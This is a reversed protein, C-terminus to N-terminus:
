AAEPLGRLAMLADFDADGETRRPHFVFEHLGESLSAAARRIEEARMSFLRDVGWLTDTAKLPAGNPGRARVFMAAIRLVAHTPQVWGGFFRVSGARLWGAFDAPLVRLMERRVFPHVHLHHHANVFACDLGAARFAEWQAEVERRVLARADRSVGLMGGARAASAGWPWRECTLPRSDCVHLHWGVLLSPTARALEVAEDTGPQGLMLSAGHLAGERCARVIAANVSADMGFDDAIFLLRKM